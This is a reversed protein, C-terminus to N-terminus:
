EKTEKMVMKHHDQAYNPLNIGLYNQISIYIINNKMEFEVQKISTYYM